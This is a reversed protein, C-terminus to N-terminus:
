KVVDILLAFQTGPRCDQLRNRVVSSRKYPQLPALSGQWPVAQALEAMELTRAVGVARPEGAVNGQEFPRPGLRPAVLSQQEYRHTTTSPGSAAVAAEAVFVAISEAVFHTGQPCLHAVDAKDALPHEVLLTRGDGEACEQHRAKVAVRACV